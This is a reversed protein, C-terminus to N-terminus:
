HPSLDKPRQRPSFPIVNSARDEEETPTIEREAELGCNGKLEFHHMKGRILVIVGGQRSAGDDTYEFAFERRLSIAGNIRVLSIGSLSATDELFQFQHWRCVDRARRTAIEKARAGELWVSVLAVVIIILLLGNDFM